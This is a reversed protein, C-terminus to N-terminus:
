AYKLVVDCEHSEHFARTYNHSSAQVYASCSRGTFSGGGIRRGYLHRGYLLRGYLHRGVVSSGTALMVVVSGVSPSGVSIAIGLPLTVVGYARYSSVDMRWTNGSIMFCNPARM